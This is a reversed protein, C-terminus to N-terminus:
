KVFYTILTVWKNSDPETGPDTIYEEVVPAVHELKNAKIHDDMAM